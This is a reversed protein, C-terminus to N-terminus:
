IVYKKRIVLFMVFGPILPLWYTILRFVLAMLFADNQGIGLSLFGLVLGAEAGGLGGPTPTIAVAASGLAMVIIAQFLNVDFGFAAATFRLSFAFCMTLAIAAITSLGVRVPVNAYRRFDTAIAKVFKIIIKRWRIIIILLFTLIVLGTILPVKGTSLQPSIHLQPRVGGIFLAALILVVNQVVAILSNLTVIASAQSYKYGSKSLYQVYLGLNGIGSPLARGVFGTTIQIQLTKLFSLGKPALLVFTMTAALYSLLMFAVAISLKQPDGSGLTSWGMKLGTLQPLVTYLLILSAALVISSGIWVRKSLKRTVQKM